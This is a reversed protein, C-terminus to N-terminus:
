LEEERMEHQICSYIYEYSEHWEEESFIIYFVKFFSTNYVLTVCMQELIIMSYSTCM